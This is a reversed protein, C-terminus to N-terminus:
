PQLEEFKDCVDFMNYTLDNLSEEALPKEGTEDIQLLYYEPEHNEYCESKEENEQEKANESDFNDPFPTLVDSYLNYKDEDDDPTCGM